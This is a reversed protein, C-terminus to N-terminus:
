KKERVYRAPLSNLAPDDGALSVFSSWNSFFAARALANNYENLRLDGTANDIHTQPANGLKVEEQARRVGEEAGARRNESFDM